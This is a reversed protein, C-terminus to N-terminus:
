ASALATLVLGDDLPGEVEYAEDLPVSHAQQLRPAAGRLRESLADAILCALREENSPDLEWLWIVHHALEHLLVDGLLRGTLREDVYIVPLGDIRTYEGLPALMADPATAYVRIGFAEVAGLPSERGSWRLRMLVADAVEEVVDLCAPRRLVGSRPNGADEM